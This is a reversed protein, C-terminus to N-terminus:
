FAPDSIASKVIKGNEFFEIRSLYGETYYEKKFINNKEDYYIWCGQKKDNVYCGKSMKGNSYQIQTKGKKIGNKYKSYIFNVTDPLSVTEIWKGSKKNSNNYRNFHNSTSCSYLLCFPISLILIMKKM